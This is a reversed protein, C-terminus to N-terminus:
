KSGSAAKECATQKQDRPIRNSFVLLINSFV